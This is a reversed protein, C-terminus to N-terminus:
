GRVKRKKEFGLQPDYTPEENIKPTTDPHRVYLDMWNEHVYGVYNGMKNIQKKYFM